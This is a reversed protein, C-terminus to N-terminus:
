DTAVQKRRRFLNKLWLRFSFRTEVGFSLEAFRRDLSTRHRYPIRWEEPPNELLEAWASDLIKTTIRLHPYREFISYDNPPVDFGLRCSRIMFESLGYGNLVKGENVYGTIDAFQECYEFAFALVGGNGYKTRIRSTGGNLCNRYWGRPAYRNLWKAGRRVYKAALLRGLTQQGEETHRLAFFTM